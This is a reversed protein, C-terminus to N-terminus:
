RGSNGPEGEGINEGLLHRLASLYLRRVEKLRELRATLTPVLQGLEAAFKVNATQDEMIQDLETLHAILEARKVNSLGNPM